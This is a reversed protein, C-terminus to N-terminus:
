AAREGRRQPDESTMGLERMCEKLLRAHVVNKRKTNLLNEGPKLKEKDRVWGELLPLQPNCGNKLLILLQEKTILKNECALQLPTGLSYEQDECNTENQVGESVSDQCIVELLPTYLPFEHVGALFVYNWLATNIQGDSYAYVPVNKARMKTYLDFMTKGTLTIGVLDLIAWDYVNQKMRNTVIEIFWEEENKHLEGSIEVPERTSSFIRMIEELPTEFM